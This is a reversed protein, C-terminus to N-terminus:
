SRTRGCYRGMERRFLGRLPMRSGRPSHRGGASVRVFLLLLFLPDDPHLDPAPRCSSSPSRHIAPSPFRAGRHISSFFPARSSAFSSHDMTDIGFALRVNTGTFGGLSYPPRRTDDTWLRLIRKNIDFRPAVPRRYSRYLNSTIQAGVAQIWLPFIRYEMM